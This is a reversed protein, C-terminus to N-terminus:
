QIHLTGGTEVQEVAQLTADQDHLTHYCFVTDCHEVKGGWMHVDELATQTNDVYRKSSWRRILFNEDYITGM